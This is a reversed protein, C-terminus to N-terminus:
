RETNHTDSIKYFPLHELAMVATKRSVKLWAM